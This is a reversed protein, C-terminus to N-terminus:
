EVPRGARTAIRILACLFNDDGEQLELRLEVLSVDCLRYM